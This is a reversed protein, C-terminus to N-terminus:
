DRAVVDLVADIGLYIQVPAGVFFHGVSLLLLNKLEGPVCCHLHNGLPERIHGDELGETVIIVVNVVKWCRVEPSWIVNLFQSAFQVLQSKISPHFIHSCVLKIIKTYSIFSLQFIVKGGPAAVLVVHWTDLAQTDNGDVSVVEM